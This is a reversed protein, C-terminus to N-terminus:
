KDFFNPEIYTIKNHAIRESEVGQKFVECFYERIIAQALPSKNDDAMIGAGILDKILKESLHEKM